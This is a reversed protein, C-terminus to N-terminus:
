LPIHKAGSVDIGAEMEVVQRLRKLARAWDMGALCAELQGALEPHERLIRERDPPQGAQLGELYEDLIKFLEAPESSARAVYPSTEGAAQPGEGGGSRLDSSAPHNRM